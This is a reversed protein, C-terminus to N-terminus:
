SKKFLGKFFPLFDHKNLIQFFFTFCMNEFVPSSASGGLIWSQCLVWFRVLALFPFKFVNTALLCVHKRLELANLICKRGPSWGFGAPPFTFIVGTKINTPLKPRSPM